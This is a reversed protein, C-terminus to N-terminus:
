LPCNPDNYKVQRRSVKNKVRGKANLSPDTAAMVLQKFCYMIDYKAGQITGVDFGMCM